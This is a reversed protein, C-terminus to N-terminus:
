SQPDNINHVVKRKLPIAQNYIALNRLKVISTGGKLKEWGGMRIPRFRADPPIITAPPIKIITAGENQFVEDQNDM